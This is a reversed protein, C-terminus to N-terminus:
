TYINRGKWQHYNNYKAKVARCMVQLLFLMQLPWLACNFLVNQRGTVSYLVITLVLVAAYILILDPFAWWVIIGGFFDLSWFLFALSFKNGFFMLVNKTFGELAEQYNHYMRCKVRREGTLCAIRKKQSKYYRAIEIDEVASAAFRQHPQEREYDTANFFMFQGNAASHSKFPSIRVLILPLLTLLIYNMIPVTIKEGLTKMQQFPFISLLSLNKHQMYTIAGTIIQGEVRVDADLFLYYDGKALAALQDCANNKGLYNPPLARSKILQIRADNKQCQKVVHATDDTSFDDCVIIEVINDQIDSLDGLLDAVCQAENRAPILVSVQKSSSSVKLKQRFIVNIFATFCQSLLFVSVIYALISIM